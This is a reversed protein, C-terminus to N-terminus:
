GHIIRYARKIYRVLLTIILYVLRILAFRGFFLLPKCILDFRRNGNFYDNLRKYVDPLDKMKLSPLCTIIARPLQGLVLAKRYALDNDNIIKKKFLNLFLEYYDICLHYLWDYDVKNPIRTALLRKGVFYSQLNSFATTYIALIGIIGRMKELYEFSYVESIEKLYKKALKGNFVLGSFHGVSPYNM